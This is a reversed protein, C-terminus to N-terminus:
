HHAQHMAPSVFIYNLIGYSVWVHSHRFLALLNYVFVFISIDLFTIAIVRSSVVTKFVAIYLIILAVIMGKQFLVSLPHTRYTTLPNLTEATHHVKHMEWFIAYKHQIYHAVYFAFDHSVFVGLTFLYNVQTPTLSMTEALNIQKFYKLHERIFFIFDAREISFYILFADLLPILFVLNIVVIWLDVRFSKSRYHQIPFISILVRKLSFPLGEKNQQYM